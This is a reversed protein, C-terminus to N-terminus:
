LWGGNNAKKSRVVLEFERRVEMGGMNDSGGVSAGGSVATVTLRGSGRKSASVVLKGNSISPPVAMGLEEMDEDSMNVSIYTWSGSVGGFYNDLSCGVDAGASIYICPIGEVQMLLRHADIYGMGLKGKYISMDVDMMGAAGKNVNKYGTQYVDVDQVSTLILNKYEEVTFSRGIKLAYALGLAACGSVHPAAMSTGQMYDYGYESLSVSSIRHITGYGAASGEGGPACINAGVGYNTYSAARFDPGMATVCIHDYYAGPYSPTGNGDNGAAFIMIGGDVLGEVGANKEFYRFADMLLSYNTNFFSDSVYSGSTYAWSNNLIVAGNAVAYYVAAAIRSEPASEGNRFIQCAMIRCGDGKGSGGAIGSGCFNNDNVAAITGAVHSGHGRMQDEDYCIEGTDDVFNYGHVDDVYGNGDDDIGASGEKEAVNVWMNEALDQHDYAIGGDMVGVIIRNDGTTFQWADFLNIDAGAVFNGYDEELSADNYYHWQWPLEPDNFPMDVSPRVQARTAAPAHMSESVVPEILTDYEVLIVRDDEAVVRALSEADVDEDFTLLWWRYIDEEQLVRDSARGAPVLPRAHVNEGYYDVTYGSVYQSFKVLLSGSAANDPKDMIKVSTRDSGGHLDVIQRECAALLLLVILALSVRGMVSRCVARHCGHWLYLCKGTFCMTHGSLCRPIIKM